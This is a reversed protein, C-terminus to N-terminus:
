GHQQGLVAYILDASFGRRALYRAQKAWEDRNAPEDHFRKQLARSAIRVWDSHPHTAYDDILQDSLGRARMEARLLMPGHGKELRSRTFVEAFREDSQLGEEQLQQAVRQSDLRSAGKTELRDILESFTFERQALLQLAQRRVDTLASRLFDEGRHSEFQEGSSGDAQGTPAESGRSLAKHKLLRLTPTMVHFRGENCARM